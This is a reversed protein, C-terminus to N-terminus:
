RNDAMELGVVVILVVTAALTLCQPVLHVGPAPHTAFSLPLAFMASGFGVVTGAIQNM